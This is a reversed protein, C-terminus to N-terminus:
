IFRLYFMVLFIIKQKHENQLRSECFTMEWLPGTDKRKVSHEKYGDLALIEKVLRLTALDQFPGKVEMQREPAMEAGVHM